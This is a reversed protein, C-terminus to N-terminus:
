IQYCSAHRFKWARIGWSCYYDAGDVKMNGYPQLVGDRIILALRFVTPSTRTDCDIAFGQPITFFITTTIATMNPIVPHIMIETVILVYMKMMHQM